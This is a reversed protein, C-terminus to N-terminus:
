PLRNNPTASPGRRIRPSKKRRGVCPRSAPPNLGNNGTGRECVCSASAAQRQARHPCPGPLSAPSPATPRSGGAPLVWGASRPLSASYLGRYACDERGPVWCASRRLGGCPLCTRRIEEQEACCRGLRDAPSASLPAASHRNCHLQAAPLGSIPEPVLGSTLFEHDSQASRRECLFGVM